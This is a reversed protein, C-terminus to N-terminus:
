LQYPFAWFHKAFVSPHRQRFAGADFGRLAAAYDPAVRQLDGMEEVADERRWQRKLIEDRLAQLRPLATAFEPDAEHASVRGIAKDLWVILGLRPDREMAKAIALAARRAGDEGTFAYVKAAATFCEGTRSGYESRLAGGFLAEVLKGFIGM